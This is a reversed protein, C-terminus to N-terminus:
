FFISDKVNSLTIKLSTIILKISQIIATRSSSNDVMAKVKNKDLSM